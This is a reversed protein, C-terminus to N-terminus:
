GSYEETIENPNGTVKEVTIENLDWMNKAPSYFNQSTVIM